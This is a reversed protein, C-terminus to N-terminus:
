GLAGLSGAAAELAAERDRGWEGAQEAVEMVIQETCLAANM